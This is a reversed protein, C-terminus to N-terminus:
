ATKAHPASANYQAIQENLDTRVSNVAITAVEVTRPGVVPVKQVASACTQAVAADAEKQQAVNIVHKAAPVMQAIRWVIYLMISVLHTLVHFAATKTVDFAQYNNVYPQAKETVKARVATVQEKANEVANQATNRANEVSAKASEVRAKAGEVYPDAKKRADDVYGHAVDVAKKAAEQLQAKQESAIRQGEHVYAQVTEVASQAAEQASAAAGQAQQQVTQGADAAAKQADQTRENMTNQVQSATDAINDAAGQAQQRIDRGRPM